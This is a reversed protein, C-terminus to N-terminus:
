LLKEKISRMLPTMGKLKDCSTRCYVSFGSIAKSTVASKRFKINSSARLLMQIGRHSRKWFSHARRPIVFSIFRELHGRARRGTGRGAVLEVKILEQDWRTRSKMSCPAESGTGKRNM